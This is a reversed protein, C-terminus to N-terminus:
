LAHFSGRLQRLVSGDTLWNEFSFPSLTVEAVTEGLYLKGTQVKDSSNYIRIHTKGDEKKELRSLIMAPNSLEVKTEKKEGLGSPFFSLAYAPQNYEEAKADLYEIDTTLRYTFEREGMDMHEHSRDTETLQRDPIPHASYVPTRLLSIYMTNDVSSGGYTGNNLVAFGKEDEFLGCWKQYAM